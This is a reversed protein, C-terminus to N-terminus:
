IVGEAKLRDIQVDSFGAESYIKLNHEGLRPAPKLEMNNEVLYDTIMPAPYLKAEKGTPAITKLCNKSVFDLDSVQRMDNVPAAALNNEVCIKLFELATFTNTGIGIDEYIEDKEAKRGENRVRSPKAIHEFGPIKTLKDWQGDSGIALYVYGDSTKYCNCPIFSRHENGSRAIHSFRGPALDREPLTTILWSAFSQGM